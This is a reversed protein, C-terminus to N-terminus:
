KRKKSSEKFMYKLVRLLSGKLTTTHDNFIM